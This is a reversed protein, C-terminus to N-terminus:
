SDGEAELEDVVEDVTCEVKGIFGGEAELEDPIAVDATCFFDFFTTFRPRHEQRVQQLGM